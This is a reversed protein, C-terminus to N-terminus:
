ETVGVTLLKHDSTEFVLDNVDVLYGRLMYLMQFAQEGGGNIKDSLNTFSWATNITISTVNREAVEKSVGDIIVRAEGHQAVKFWKFVALGVADAMPTVLRGSQEDLVTGFYRNVVYPYGCCLGGDIVMRGEGEVAPTSKLRAEMGYNMCIVVDRTDYGRQELETMAQMIAKYMGGHPVQWESANVSSFPGNIGDFDASSFLHSAVYRREAILFKRQIFGLLDFGASDIAMNSVEITIGSRVPEAASVQAFGLKQDSITATEDEEEVHVDDISVPWVETGTVGMDVELGPPLGLSNDVTNIFDNITLRIAGSADLCSTDGHSKAELTLERRHDRAERLVQRM